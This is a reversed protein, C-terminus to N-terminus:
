CLVLRGEHNLTIKNLTYLCDLADIFLLIDNNYNRVEFFLEKPTKPEELSSLIPAFLPLVSENYSFLKNPLLM